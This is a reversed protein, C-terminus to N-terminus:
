SSWTGILARCGFSPAAEGPKLAASSSRAPSGRSIWAAGELLLRPTFPLSLFLFTLFHHLIVRCNLCKNNDNENPGTTLEVKKVKFKLKLILNNFKQSSKKLYKKKRENIM